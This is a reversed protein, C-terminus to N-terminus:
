GHSGGARYNRNGIAQYLDAIANLATDALVELQPDAKIAPHDCLYDQIMGTVIHAVHLVEHQSFADLKDM